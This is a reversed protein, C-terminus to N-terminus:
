KLIWVLVSHIFHNDNLRRLQQLSKVRVRSVCVNTLTVTMSLLTGATSAAAHEPSRWCVCVCVRVICEPVHLCQTDCVGKFTVCQTSFIGTVSVRGTSRATRTPTCDSWRALPGWTTEWCSARLRCWSSTPTPQWYFLSFPKLICSIYSEFRTGRLSVWVWCTCNICVSCVTRKLCKDCRCCLPLVASLELYLGDGTWQKLKCCPRHIILLCQTMTVSVWVTWM